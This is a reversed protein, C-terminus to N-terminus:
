LTAQAGPPPSYHAQNNQVTQLREAGQPGRLLVHAMSAFQEGELAWSVSAYSAFPSQVHFGTLRAEGTQPGEGVRCQINKSYGSRTANERVRGSNESKNSGETPTVKDRQACLQPAQLHFHLKGGDQVQSNQMGLVWFYVPRFDKKCDNQRGAVPASIELSAARRSQFSFSWWFRHPLFMATLTYNKEHWRPNNLFLGFVHNNTLGYWVARIEQSLSGSSDDVAVLYWCCVYCHIHACCKNNAPVKLACKRRQAKM